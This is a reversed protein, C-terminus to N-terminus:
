NGKHENPIKGTRIFEQVNELVQAYAIINKEVSEVGLKISALSAQVSDLGKEIGDLRKTQDEFQKEIAVAVYPAVHISM